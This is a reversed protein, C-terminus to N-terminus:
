EIDGYGMGSHESLLEDFEDQTKVFYDNEDNWFSVFIDGDSTYIPHQEFGEGWGDSAQGSWEDKLMDMESDSLMGYSEVNLVGYLKGDIEEVAPFAAKIKTELEDGLYEAIGRETMTRDIDAKIKASISDEYDVASAASIQMYDEEADGYENRVELNISLPCFLKFSVTDTAKENNSDDTLINKLSVYNKMGVYGYKGFNGTQNDLTDAGLGEYDYYDSLEDDYMFNGSDKILYMGLEEIDSIDAGFEFSGLNEALIAARTFDSVEAYDCVAVLMPIDSYNMDTLASSLDNLAPIDGSDYDSKIDSIWDTSYNPMKLEKISCNEISSAGLRHVARDIAMRSCPLYLYEENNGYGVTIDIIDNSDAFFQPFTQGNYVENMPLNNVFVTGYPTLTDNGSTVLSEGLTAYDYGDDAETPIAYEVNLRHTKGVQAMDSFDTILTYNHLNYTLNIMDKLEVPHTVTMAAQFQRLEKKDFSDLRKALFNLEDVDIFRDSLCQLGRIDGSIHSCFQNTMTMDTEGLNTLAIDIGYDNSPVDLTTIRNNKRLEARINLM